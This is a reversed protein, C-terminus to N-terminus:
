SETHSIEESGVEPLAIKVVQDLNEVFHFNMLKKKKINKILRRKQRFNEIRATEDEIGSALRGTRYMKRLQKRSDRLWRNINLFGTLEPQNDVPLIVDRIGGEYAGLVKEPLGGIPLVDGKITIEGTMAINRPVPKNTLTSILACAISIGASPGEKEIAEPAHIHIDNTIAFNENVGFKGARDRVYTVAARTSEEMDREMLGTSTMKGWGKVVSAEVIGVRGEPLMGMSGVTLCNVQGIRGSGIFRSFSNMFENIRKKSAKLKVSILSDEEDKRKAMVRGTRLSKMEMGYPLAQFIALYNRKLLGIFLLFSGALLAYIGQIRGAFAIVAIGIAAFIAGFGAIKWNREYDERASTIASYRLPMVDRGRKCLLRGNTLYVKNKPFRFRGIVNENEILAERVVRPIRIGEMDM